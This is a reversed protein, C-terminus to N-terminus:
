ERRACKDGLHQPTHSPGSSLISFFFIPPSHCNRPLCVSLFLPLQTNATSLLIHSIIRYFSVTFHRFLVQMVAIQLLLNSYSNQGFTSVSIMISLCGLHLGPQIVWRVLARSDWCGPKLFNYLFARQSFHLSNRCCFLAHAELILQEIIVNPHLPWTDVCATYGTGGLVCKVLHLSRKRRYCLDNEKM